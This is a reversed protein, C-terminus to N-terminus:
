SAQNLRSAIARLVQRMSTERWWRSSHRAELRACELVSMTLLQCPMHNEGTSASAPAPKSAQSLAGTSTSAAGIRSSHNRAGTTAHHILRGTARSVVLRLDGCVKNRCVSARL